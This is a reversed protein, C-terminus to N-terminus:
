QSKGSRGQHDNTRFPSAPLGATNYLNCGEPNTAWAYRVAQPAPVDPSSVVVSDGDIVADAWTWKEDSGAIEFWELKVGPTPAVPDLGNKKGSMLAAGGTDFKVRIKAGEVACYQYLPSQSILEQKGYTKALALLALRKGVDQKNPPHITLDSGIDITVAMGTNTVSELTRLQSERLSAWSHDAHTRSPADNNALQVFLFPFDGQNWQERWDTIMRPFLRRYDSARKSPRTNSEGQYWIVGQVAYPILPRIMANYLASPTNQIESVNLKPRTALVEDALRPYAREVKVKWANDVANPDPVPLGMGKGPFFLGGKADHRVLRLAIVNRGAKVLKGPVTYTRPANYFLPPKDGTHGIEEGNFYAIDYQEAMYGFSLRFPMGASEAPIDVEKRLWYVGGSTANAVLAFTFPVQAPTWDDDKLDPSAWGNKFGDNETDAVGNHKEWVARLEPYTAQEVPAREMDAIQTEIESKLEPMSEMVERRTWAEAPTGGWCSKVIGVPIGLKLSLEKAFFYGVASFNGAIDPACVAWSGEVSDQSHLSGNKKVEFQRILPFKALTIEKQSDTASTLPFVMNSQGSAIWVEGVVVDRLVCAIGESGSITLDQGDGSAPMADFTIRWRGEPDAKVTHSAGGFSVTVVEGPDARGWVPVPRNRQLVAHDSFLPSLTPKAQGGNMLCLWLLMGHVFLDKLPRM